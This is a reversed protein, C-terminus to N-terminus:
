GRPGRVPLHEPHAARHPHTGLMYEGSDPPEDRPGRGIQAGTRGALGATSVAVALVAWWPIEAKTAHGACAAVALLAPVAGGILGARRVPRHRTEDVDHDGKAQAIARGPFSM